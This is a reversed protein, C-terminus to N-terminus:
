RGVGRLTGASTALDGRIKAVIEKNRNLRALTQRREEESARAAARADEIRRKLEDGDRWVETVYGRTNESSDNHGLQIPVKIGAAKMRSFSAAISDLFEGSITVAQGAVNKVVAGARMISKVYSRVPKGNADTRQAGVATADSNDLQLIRGNPSLM